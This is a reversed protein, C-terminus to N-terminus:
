GYDYHAIYQMYFGIIIRRSGDDDSDRNLWYAILDIYVWIRM